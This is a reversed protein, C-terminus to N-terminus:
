RCPSSSWPATSWGLQGIQGFTIRLGLLAVSIRLLTRASVNIGPAYRAEVVIPELGNRAIPRFYGAARPLSGLPLNGRAGCDLHIGCGPVLASGSARLTTSAGAISSRQFEMLRIKGNAVCQALRRNRNENRRTWTPISVRRPGASRPSTRLSRYIGAVSAPSAHRARAGHVRTRRVAFAMGLLRWGSCSCIITAM